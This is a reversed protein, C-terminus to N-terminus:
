EPEDGPTPEDYPDEPRDSAAILENEAVKLDAFVPGGGDADAPIVSVVTKNSLNEEDIPFRDDPLHAAGGRQKRV